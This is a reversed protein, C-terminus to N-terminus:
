VERNTPLTLHTYSVSNASGTATAFGCNTSTQICVTGTEDPLTITRSATLATPVVITTTFTNSATADNLTIQGAKAISDTGLTLYGNNSFQAITYGTTGDLLQLLSSTQSAAGRIIAGVSSASASQIYFNATQASTGNQIYNSSGAAPTCGTASCVTTGNIRYVSGSSINVDGTVDLAYSSSPTMNIGVGTTTATLRNTGNINLGIQGSSSSNKVLFASNSGDWSFGGIENQNPSLVAITPQHASSRADFLSIVRASTNATSPVGLAILQNFAGPDYNVVNILSKVTGGGPTIYDDAYAASGASLRIGGKLEFGATGAYSPTTTGGLNFGLRSNTTDLTLLNAGAQNKINFASTGNAAPQMAFSGQLTLTKGSALTTDQNLNISTANTTGIGLAGAAATDITPAQLATAARGTGSIWFSATSQAGAFQNQIYNGGGSSLAFGCNASNQICLTGSEAPLSITNTGSPTGTNLTTTNAGSGGVLKGATFAYPVATLKLRPSMEGDWSPSVSTGGINMTLWLEQDWNISGFATVSGLNVTLYGNVVRVKDSGTRTETWVNTGSTAADYLKFEVNYQGDPVITGAATLLRAQFNITSSTAALAKDDKSFAAVFSAVIVVALIAVLSARKFFTPTKSKQKFM